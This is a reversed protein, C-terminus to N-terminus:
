PLTVVIEARAEAFGTWTRGDSARVEIESGAMSPSFVRFRGDSATTARCWRERITLPLTPDLVLVSAGAIPRGTGDFVRGILAAGQVVDVTCETTEGAIVVAPTRGLADRGALRVFLEYEDARLEALEFSAGEGRRWSEVLKGDSDLLAHDLEGSTNGADLGQARVTVRLTRSAEFRLTVFGTPARLVPRPTMGLERHAAGLEFPLEGPTQLRFLGDSSTRVGRFTAHFAASSSGTAALSVFADNLPEGASDLM